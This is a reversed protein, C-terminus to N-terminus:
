NFLEALLEDDTLDNNVFGLEADVEKQLQSVWVTRLDIENQSKANALRAKENNLNNTLALLHSNTM